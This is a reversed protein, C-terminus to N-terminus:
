KYVFTNSEIYGRSKTEGYWKGLMLETHKSYISIKIPQQATNSSISESTCDSNLHWVFNQGILQILNINFLVFTLHSKSQIM